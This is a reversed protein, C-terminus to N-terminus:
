GREVRTVLDHLYGAIEWGIRFAFGIVLALAFTMFFETM